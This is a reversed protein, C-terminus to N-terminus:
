HLEEYHLRRWEGKVEEKKPGFIRWLARNQLIEGQIERNGVRSLMARERVLISLGEDMLYIVDKKTFM